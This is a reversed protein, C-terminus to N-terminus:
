FTRDPEEGIIRESELNDLQEDSLDLLGALIERSHQGLTPAPSDIKFPEESTRYPTIPHPVLGAYEREMWQWYGRKEFVPHTLLDPSGLVPAAPIGFGQLQSALQERDRTRTWASIKEDILDHEAWRAELTNFRASQLESDGTAAAFRSWAEDDEITVTLWMEDGACPYVGRPAVQPDRSGYRDPTKNLLVQSAVGHLALSTSAEVHSIDLHQGEGTRQAHLIAILVGALGHLGAVPDGLAVHTMAPPDEPRGQLHPLGSAQEVTSGYARFFHWPGGAGFPPMSLMVLQPNAERLVPEDLELKPLVGASYNQIVVDSVAVLDKLLQKGRPDVLNLTVGRKNRNMVNFNPAKEYLRQAVREASVDWDRWWDFYQRSEVKIVEAGVDALNRACLPGAWGMSLDIVRLGRLLDPRLVPEKVPNPKASRVAVGKSNTPHATASGIPQHEGLTAVKGDKRAPTNHLRFPQGPVELKRGGPLTIERFADVARLQASSFLDAMTPVLALPVRLRQGELFWYEASKKKLAPVLADDIQQAGMIRNAAVDFEPIASLEETGIMTCFSHWQAPTLATVGLWGESTEYISAPYTPYFRNIGLRNPRDPLSVPPNAAISAGTSEKLAMATEFLSLDIHAAEVRQGLVSSILHVATASFANMGGLIQVPYGSMLLPLGETPGFNIVQSIMSLVSQDNGPKGAMDGTQGWWTLSTLIVDPSVAKLVDFGIGLGALTGPKESELVVDATKVWELLEAHQASDTIDLVLSEKNPSLLAHIGSNDPAKLDPDFPALGRTAHGSDPNEVNIVRAGFDAFVRACAATAISGSLDLITYDSLPLTM